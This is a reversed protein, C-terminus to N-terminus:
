RHNIKKTAIVEVRIINPLKNQQKSINVFPNNQSVRNFTNM